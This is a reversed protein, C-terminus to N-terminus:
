RYSTDDSSTFGLRSGGRTRARVRATPRPLLLVDQGDNVIVEPRSNRPPTNALMARKRKVSLALM